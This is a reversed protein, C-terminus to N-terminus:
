GIKVALWGNSLVCEKTCEIRAGAFVHDRRIPCQGVETFYIRGLHIM